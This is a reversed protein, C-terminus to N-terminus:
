THRGVVWCNLVDFAHIVAPTQRVDCEEREVCKKLQALTHAFTAVHVSSRMLAVTTICADNKEIHFRFEVTFYTFEDRLCHASLPMVRGVSLLDHLNQLKTM